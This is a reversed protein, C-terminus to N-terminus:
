QSQRSRSQSQGRQQSSGSPQRERTFQRDSSSGTDQFEINEAVMVQRGQVNMRKGDITVRDMLNLDKLNFEGVTYQHGADILISRGDLLRLKLLALQNTGTGITMLQYGEVTGQIQFKNAQDQRPSRNIRITEDGLRVQNAMLVQRGDVRGRQGKVRIRDGKQLDIKDLNRKPGLDVVASRGNQLTIKVLSHQGRQGVANRLNLHRFGDIRGSLDYVQSSSSPRTQTTQQFQSSSGSSRSQQNSATQGQNLNVTQGQHRLQQALIVPRGRLKKEQGRILVFDGRRLGLRNVTNVPGLDVTKTQGNNLRVQALAHLKSPGSSSRINVQRLSTIDGSFTSLNRRSHTPLSQRSASQSQLSSSSSPQSKSSESKKAACHPCYPCAMSQSSSSQALLPATVLFGAFVASAMFPRTMM